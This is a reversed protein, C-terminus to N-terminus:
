QKKVRVKKWLVKVIRGLAIFLSVGGVLLCIFTIGWDNVLHMMIESVIYIVVCGLIVRNNLKNRESKLPYFVCLIGIIFGLLRLDSELWEELIIMQNRVGIRM